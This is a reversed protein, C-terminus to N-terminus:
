LQSPQLRNQFQISTNFILVPAQDAAEYDTFKPEIEHSLWVLCFVKFTWLKGAKLLFLSLTFILRCTQKNTGQALYKVLNDRGKLLKVPLLVHCSSEFISFTVKSDGPQSVKVFLHTCLDIWHRHYLRRKLSSKFLPAAESNTL